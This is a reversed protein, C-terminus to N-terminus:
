LGAALDPWSQRMPGGCPRSFELSTPWQGVVSSANAMRALTAHRAAKMANHFRWRELKSSWWMRHARDLSREQDDDDLEVGWDVIYSTIGEDLYGPPADTINV